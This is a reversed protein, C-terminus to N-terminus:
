SQRAGRSRVTLAQWFAPELVAFCCPRALELLGNKSRHQPSRWHWVNRGSGIAQRVWFGTKQGTSSSRWHWVNRYLKGMSTRRLAREGKCAPTPPYQKQTLDNFCIGGASCETLPLIEQHSASSLRNTLAMHGTFRLLRMLALTGRLFNWSRKTLQLYCSLSCTGKGGEAKHHKETAFPHPSSKPKRSPVLPPFTDRPGDLVLLTTSRFENPSRPTEGTFVM